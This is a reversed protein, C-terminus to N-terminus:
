HWVKANRLEDRDARTWCLTGAGSISLFLLGLLMSFDVRAEHLMAWIGSKAIMPIKTTAISVSIDILLHAFSNGYAAHIPHDM